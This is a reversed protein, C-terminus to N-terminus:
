HDNWQNIKWLSSLEYKHLFQLITDYSFVKIKNREAESEQLKANLTDLNKDSTQISEEIEPLSEIIGDIELKLGNM